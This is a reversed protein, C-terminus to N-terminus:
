EGAIERLVGPAGHASTAMVLIPSVVGLTAFLVGPCNALLDGAEILLNVGDHLAYGTVTLAIHALLRADARSAQERVGGSAGLISPAHAEPRSIASDSESAAGPGM